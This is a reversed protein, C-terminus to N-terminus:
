KVGPSPGPLCCDLVRFFSIKKVMELAYEYSYVNYYYMNTHIRM